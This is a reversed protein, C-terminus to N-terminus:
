ETSFSSPELFLSTSPNRELMSPAAQGALYRQWFPYSLLMGSLVFFASVGFGGQSFFAQLERIVIPTKEDVQLRQWIHSMLVLLAAIARVGDAGGLTKGSELKVSGLSAKLTQWWSVVGRWFGM